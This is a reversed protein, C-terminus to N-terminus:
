TWLLDCLQSLFFPSGSKTGQSRRDFDMRTAKCPPFFFERLAAFVCLPSQASGNLTEGVRDLTDIDHMIDHM